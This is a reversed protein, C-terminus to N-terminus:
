DAVARRSRFSREIESQMPNGKKLFNKEGGSEVKLFNYSIYTYLKKWM